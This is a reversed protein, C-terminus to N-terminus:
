PSTFTLSVYKLLVNIGTTLKGGFAKKKDSLEQTQKIDNNIADSQKQIGQILQGEAILRRRATSTSIGEQTARQRIQDAQSLPADAMGPIIFGRPGRKAVNVIRKGKKPKDTLKSDALKGSSSKAGSPKGTTKPKTLKGKEDELMEDPKVLLSSHKAHLARWNEKKGQKLRDIMAQYVKKEEPDTIGFGAITPELKKLSKDIEANMARHYEDATMNKAISITENGFWYPSRGAAGGKVGSLNKEAMELM